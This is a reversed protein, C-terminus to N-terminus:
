AFVWGYMASAFALFLIQFSRPPTPAGLLESATFTLFIIGVLIVANFLGDLINKPKEM